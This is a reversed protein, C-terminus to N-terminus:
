AVIEILFPIVGDTDAIFKVSVGGDGVDLRFLYCELSVTLM